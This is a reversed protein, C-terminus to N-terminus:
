SSLSVYLDKTTFQEFIFSQQTPMRQLMQFDMCNQRSYMVKPDFTADNSSFMRSFLFNHKRSTINRKFQAQYKMM